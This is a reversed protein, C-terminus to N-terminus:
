KIVTENGRHVYHVKFCGQGYMVMALIHLNDYISSLYLSPSQFNFDHGYKKKIPACCSWVGSTILVVKAISHNESLKTVHHTYSDRDVRDVIVDCNCTSNISKWFMGKIKAKEPSILNGVVIRPLHACTMKLGIAIDLEDTLLLNNKCNPSVAFPTSTGIIMGAGGLPLKILTRLIKESSVKNQNPLLREVNFKQFKKVLINTQPKEINKRKQIRIGNKRKISLIATKVRNKQLGTKIVIHDLVGIPLRKTLDYNNTKIVKAVMQQTETM